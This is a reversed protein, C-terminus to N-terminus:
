KEKPSFNPSVIILYDFDREKLKDPTISTYNKYQENKFRIDCLSDIDFLEDLNFKSSIEDFIDSICYFIVKKNRCKKSLIQINKEM